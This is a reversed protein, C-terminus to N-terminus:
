YSMSLGLIAINKTYNAPVYDSSNEIYRNSIFLEYRDKFLHSFKLETQHYDDDRSDDYSASRYRYDFRGLLWSSINYNVGLSLTLMNKDIYLAHIAKDSSFTEFKTNIYVFNNDMLYYVGFGASVCSDDMIKYQSDNYVRQKYAANLNLIYSKAFSIDVRPEFKYQQMLSTDLYNVKDVGFPIYINYNGGRYGYGADVSGIFMDYYHASFNDQYYLKLDGKIYSGGVNDFDNIYSLSGSFRSFVTSKEGESNTTQYFTDLEEEDASININTDYGFVLSTKAKIKQIDADAILELATRQEPTLQYNALEKSTEKALSIRSTKDYIKALEIKAEINTEDLMIVREYASMAEDLRGLRYASQAWLLHLQPNSYEDFSIRVEAITNEYEGAEYYNKADIYSAYALFELSFLFIIFKMM